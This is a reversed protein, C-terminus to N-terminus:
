KGNKIIDLLRIYIQANQSNINLKKKLNELQM